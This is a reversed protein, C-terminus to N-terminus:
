HDGAGDAPIGHQRVAARLMILDEQALRSEREALAARDWARQSQDKADGSRELAWIAAGLAVVLVTLVLFFLAKDTIGVNVIQASNSATRAHVSGDNETNTASDRPNSM